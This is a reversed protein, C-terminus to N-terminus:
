EPDVEELEVTAKKAKTLQQSRQPSAKTSSYLSGIDADPMDDNLEADLWLVQERADVFAAASLLGFLHEQSTADKLREDSTDPPLQRYNSVGFRIGSPSRFSRINDVNAKEIVFTKKSSSAIM